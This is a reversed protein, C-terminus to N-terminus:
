RVKTCISAPVFCADFWLLGPSRVGASAPLYAGWAVLEFMAPLAPAALM